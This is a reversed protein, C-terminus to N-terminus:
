MIQTSTRARSAAQHKTAIGGGGGGGQGQCQSVSEGKRGNVREREKRYVSERECVCVCLAVLVVVRKVVEQEQSEHLLGRCHAEIAFLRPENQDGAQMLAGQSEVSETLGNNTSPRPDEGIVHGARAM